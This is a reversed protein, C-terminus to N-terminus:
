AALGCRMRRKGHSRGGAEKGDKGERGGEDDRRRNVGRERDAIKADFIEGGGGGEADVGGLRTEAPFEKRVAAGVMLRSIM